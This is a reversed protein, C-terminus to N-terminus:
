TQLVARVVYRFTTKGKPHCSFLTL